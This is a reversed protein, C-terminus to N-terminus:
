EVSHENIDLKKLLNVEELKHAAKRILEISFNSRKSIDVLSNTGDSLNLIWLFAYEMKRKEISNEQGGFM